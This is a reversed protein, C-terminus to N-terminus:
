SNKILRGLFYSLASLLIIVFLGVPLLLFSALISGLVYLVISNLGSQESLVGFSTLYLINLMIAPIYGTILLLFTKLFTEKYLKVAIYGVILVGLAPLLTDVIFFRDWFPLAKSMIEYINIKEISLFNCLLCYALMVLTQYIISKRFLTYLTLYRM